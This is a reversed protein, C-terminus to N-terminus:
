RQPPRRLQAAGSSGPALMQKLEDPESSRGLADDVTILRRSLLTMLCQNMTQMGFKEQGVQMQSYIQHVKDERILNRIAPNPVMVELALARGPGNARPILTQSMVGELVFSLQTRVQTQQYPPFVDIIRNMTQACSNTHLTAFCLHGTEALTLAAEITELDRLEGILVVDPDQRLVYKLAHKFSKTDAGVERQNVICGKHPHLYEIPDEVTVIHDHRNQNIHDIMSALTTSKGSGTPGTVLILGRPKDCLARVVPPLGLEEFSLIKYPIVRFVGAVAGRQVFINGRFRSLGKVGFSLDLENDEEFRHKQADTLISYCLQKTEIANLPPVDMPTLKGDIRIQPSTNTTIHLDSGGREVLEKLMQHFNIM